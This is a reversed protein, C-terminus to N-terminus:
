QRWLLSADGYSYFRYEGALAHDYIARTAPLGVFAAVLMLLTSRPLHFNTILGDAVRFPFGPRIFLKTEGDLPALDGGRAASELVRLATTGVTIIRGGRAKALAISSVARASVIGREAHMEHTNLNEASVPLFTGPGVHLTVRTIDIGSQQLRSMLKDTFHLGATPAAVSGPPDAYVTQYDAEDHRDPARRSAIYPPLPMMGSPLPDAGFALRVQAGARDLVRAEVTAGSKGFQVVDGPQLRKAPKAFARWIDEGESELLTVEIAARFEGRVREGSLRAPIVRSDNVVLLDGPRLLEPLDAVVRDELPGDRPAVLLLAGDRSAAPRLAIREEPLAYDYDSLHTGDGARGEIM